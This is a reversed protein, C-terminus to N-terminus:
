GGSVKSNYKAVLRGIIYLPLLVPTLFIVVVIALVDGVLYLGKEIYFFIDNIDYKSM